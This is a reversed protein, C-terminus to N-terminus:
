RKSVGFVRSWLSRGREADLEAKLKEVKGSQDRQDALLLTIRESQERWKDREKELETIRKDRDSIRENLLEQKENAVDLKARLLEANNRPTANGNQAVDRPTADQQLLGFVRDLESTDIKKHGNEDTVYSLRGSKMARHITSRNVGTLKEAGTAGVKAM